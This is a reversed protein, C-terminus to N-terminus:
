LFYEAIVGPPIFLSRPSLNAPCLLPFFAVVRKRTNYINIGVQHALDLSSDLHRRQQRPHRPLQRLALRQAHAPEAPLGEDENILHPGHDEKGM